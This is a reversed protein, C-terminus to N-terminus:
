VMDIGNVIDLVLEFDGGVRGVRVSATVAAAAATPTQEDISGAMDVIDKTAKMSGTLVARSVGHGSVKM